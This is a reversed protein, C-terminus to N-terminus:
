GTLVEDLWVADWLSYDGIREVLNARLPNAAIYRAMKRLDEEERVAHDFYNAQWVAQGIAHSSRGKLLQVAESLTGEHLVMLWHLHDPMLVYCLTEARGEAQLVMLQRVVKRGNDLSSFYTTRNRTVTTIHYVLGSQSFRGKRLDSYTM